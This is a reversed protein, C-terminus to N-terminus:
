HKAQSKNNRKKGDSQMRRMVEELETSEVLQKASLRGNSLTVLQFTNGEEDTDEELSDDDSDSRVPWTTKTLNHTSRRRSRRRRGGGDPCPTLKTNDARLSSPVSAGQWASGRQFPDPGAVKIFHPHPPRKTHSLM